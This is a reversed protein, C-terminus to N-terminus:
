WGAELESMYVQVQRRLENTAKRGTKRSVRIFWRWGSGTAPVGRHFTTYDFKVIEGSKVQQIKYYERDPYAELNDNIAHNWVEYVVEGLNPRPVVVQDRIYETLSGTGLDIVCSLHESLYEPDMYNPQGDPATRPVDDHHWGPICPYWGKMLMHVRSDIVLDDGFWEQPLDGLFLRTIPGGLRWATWLDCSFLMPENKLADVSIGNVDLVDLREVKSNFFFM